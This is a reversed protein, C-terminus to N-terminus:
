YPVSHNKCYKGFHLSAYTLFLSFDMISFLAKLGTGSCITPSRVNENLKEAHKQKPIGETYVHM